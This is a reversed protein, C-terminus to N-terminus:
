RYSSFGQYRPSEIHRIVTEKWQYARGRRQEEPITLTFNFSRRLVGEPCNLPAVGHWSNASKVFFCLRNPRFGSDFVTEVHSRPLRSNSWNSDYRRDIPKYFQTGGGWEPQWDDQPFYLLFILVKDISDTHPPLMTDRKLMSFECNLELAWDRIAPRKGLLRLYRSANPAPVRFPPVFDKAWAQVDKLFERTRITSIFSHWADSVGDVNELSDQRRIRQFRKGYQLTEPKVLAAPFENELQAYMDTPLFDDAFGFVFPERYVQWRQRSVLPATNGCIM